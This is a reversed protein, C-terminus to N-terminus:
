KEFYGDYGVAGLDDGGHGPDIVILPRKVRVEKKVIEKGSAPASDPKAQPKPKPEAPAARVKEVAEAGGAIGLRRKAEDVMDGRPYIDIIEFYAARAGAEDKYGTRRLDGLHLLADDALSNGSHEKAIREYYLVARSLASRSSRAFYMQGYLQGALYMAKASTDGGHDAEIISALESGVAEWQKPRRIKPDSSKLSQYKARVQDYSPAALAADGGHLVLLFSFLVFVYTRLNM